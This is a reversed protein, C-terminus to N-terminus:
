AWGGDRTLAKKRYKPNMVIINPRSVHNTHVMLVHICQQLFTSEDLPYKTDTIHCTGSALSKSRIIQAFGKFSYQM